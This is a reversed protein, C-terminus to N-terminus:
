LVKGGHKFPRTKNFNHKKLIEEELNIGYYQCIDMIRIVVDALESPVGCPKGDNIYSEDM